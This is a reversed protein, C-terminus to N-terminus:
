FGYRLALQIVNVRYQPAQMGYSLLSPVTAPEVGDLRWDASQYREYWYSATVSLNEQLRYTGFIKFSDMSTTATPFNSIGATTDMEIDSDSRTFVLDAGLDLKGEIAAYRLGLGLLDARDEHRATWDPAGAQESGAQRSDLWDSRAYAQLVLTETVAASLDAGLGSSRGYTLGVLTEDYDEIAVEGLVGVTVGEGLTFDGRLEMSNRTRAALNAKRLLPNETYGFWYAVGYDSHDREGRALKVSLATEETVQAAMRGWITTERTTVAAQYSRDWRDHEAGGSLKVADSARYDATLQFRDQTFDFPTNSRPDPKVFIDTAVQPYSQVGTQNEHVNRAYSANLRLGELPAASLKVSGNLTDVSGDLSRSPLAPVTLGTNLTSSLYDADQTMRGVALDASARLTPTIQYGASAMIQHFENDPALALQGRTEGQVPEFPNDWTLAENRNRYRSLQYALTAQFRRDAYEAAIELQDTVDDLPAALQAATSFFSGYMPRTGDREDKRLSVRYSLHEGAIWTGGVDFRSRKYGLEVPQLTTALPMDATTAAPFGPPLTLVDGGNGLFPTMADDGFYRPIEGYRLDLRYVGERGAQAEVSRVDLGLDAASLDAFYGGDGRHSAQGGLVLHPGESELGTYTGFRASDDSVYGVGVDVSATTGKPYPCSECKWASTDPAAVAASASLVGLAGLLFLPSHIRM